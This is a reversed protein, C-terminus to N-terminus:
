CEPLLQQEIPCRAEGCYQGDDGSKFSCQFPGGYLLTSGSLRCVLIDKASILKGAQKISIYM